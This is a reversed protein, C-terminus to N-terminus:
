NLATSAIIAVGREHFEHIRQGEKVPLDVTFLLNQRTSNLYVPLMIKATDTLDTKKIWRLRTLHLNTSIESSIALQNNRCVAGSLKLGEVAFSCDDFSPKDSEDAVCVDLHLEELSWSNAQAVCQRTATIFAEPNFLGGMWVSISKLQSASGGGVAKSVDSLQKVRSSFDTMWAAVSCSTPVKYGMWSKPIMGKTLMAILARHHNTQKKGSSTIAVVDELDQRVSQLLKVGFNVEREFFRYLPDKINEVTRKLPNLSTPLLALWESSSTHLTRMWAPRGEVVGSTDAKSDSYALEEDDEDLQQMKLLKIVLDHGRQALLVREANNPLGLWDPSTQDELQEVWSLFQDRRIGDPMKINTQTGNV